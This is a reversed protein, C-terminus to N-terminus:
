RSTPVVPFLFYISQLSRLIVVGLSVTTINFTTIIVKRKTSKLWPSPRAQLDLAARSREGIGGGTSGTEARPFDTQSNVSVFM